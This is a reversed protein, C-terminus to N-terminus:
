EDQVERFQSVERIQTTQTLSNMAGEAMGYTGREEERDAHLRRMIPNPPFFIRTRVTTSVMERKEGIDIGSKAVL